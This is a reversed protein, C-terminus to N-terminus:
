RLLQRAEVYYRLLELGSQDGGVSDGDIHLDLHQPIAPMKLQACQKDPLKLNPAVPASVCGTLMLALITIKSVGRM